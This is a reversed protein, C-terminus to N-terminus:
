GRSASSHPEKQPEHEDKREGGEKRASSRKTNKTKAGKEAPM